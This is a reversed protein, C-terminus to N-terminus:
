VGFYVPAHLACGPNFVAGCGSCGRAGLYDTILLTTGCMRCLVAHEDHRHRPWPRIPHNSVEDHCHLCPFWQDCCLFRIAIVDFPSNWHGCGLRGVLEPVPDGSCSPAEPGASAGASEM